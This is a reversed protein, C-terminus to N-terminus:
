RYAKLKKSIEETLTSLKNSFLEKKFKNLYIKLASKKMPSGVLEMFGEGRIEKNRLHGKVSIGGEWYNISGFIMEQKKNYPEVTFFLDWDPMYIEYGLQYESGTEISKFKNKPLKKIMLNSTSKQNGKADMMSAHYTKNKDGYEFCVVEINDDLQVSFWTWKDGRILPAQAWQHDMWSKGIVEVWKNNHKIYGSTELNTLSYYYTTKIKLDLFGNKNLLLPKKTSCLKLDVYDNTIKYCFPKYEDILSGNDYMVWLLPKTFSNQNVLCIPNLKNHFKKSKNDSLLYHSFYLNKLPIKELFPIKVKKPKTAFLTNMYSFHRGDRTRLNGNFYWWEIVHDHKQEDQPFKIPKYKEKYKM